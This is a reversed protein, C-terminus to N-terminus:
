ITFCFQLVVTTEYNKHIKLLQPNKKNNYHDMKEHQKKAVAYLVCSPTSRSTVIDM